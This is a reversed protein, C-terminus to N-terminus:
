AMAALGRAKRRMNVFRRLAERPNPASWRFANLVRTPDVFSHTPGAGITAAHSSWPWDEANACLGAEVPNNAVYAYRGVLDDEDLIRHAGYRDYQVHGRLGYKANYARAYAYNLDHMAAPLVADAVEAILHHHNGMLCFAICTFGDRTSVRALHRLFERRDVDDGFIAAYGWVAHTYVHFVGAATDRPHRPM